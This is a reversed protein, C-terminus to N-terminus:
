GNEIMGLQAAESGRMVLMQVVSKIFLNGNMTARVKRYIHCTHVVGFNLDVTYQTDNDRRM